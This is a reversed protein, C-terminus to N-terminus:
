KRIQDKLHKCNNDQKYSPQSGKWSELGEQETIECACGPFYDSNTVFRCNLRRGKYALIGMLM